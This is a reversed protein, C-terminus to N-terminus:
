FIAKGGLSVNPQRGSFSVYFRLRKKHNGIEMASFGASRARAELGLGAQPFIKVM